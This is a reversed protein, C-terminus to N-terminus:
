YVYFFFCFSFQFIGGYFCPLDYGVKELMIDFLGRLFLFIINDIIFKRAQFNFQSPIKRGDFWNIIFIFIELLLALISITSNFRHLREFLHVFLALFLVCLLKLLIM